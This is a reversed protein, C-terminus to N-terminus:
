NLSLKYPNSSTGDGTDVGQRASLFLVPRANWNESVHASGYVHGASTVGWANDSYGSHPTILWEYVGKYLYNNSRCQYSNVSSNYNNITLSNGSSDKCKSLDAAYSYDSPYMLAVKGKWSITSGTYVTKGMEKEYIFNPYVINTNWGGTTYTVTKILNRTVDNKIGTSTFNCSKTANNQGSYCYGSKAKYYLSGGTTESEYGPNLLKMLRADTWDNKGYVSEAGTSTNKNDWSYM